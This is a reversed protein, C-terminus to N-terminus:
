SRSGTAARGGLGQSLLEIPGGSHAVSRTRRRGAGQMATGAAGSGHREGGVETGAVMVLSPPAAAASTSAATSGASAPARSHAAGIATGRQASAKAPTRAVSLPALDNSIGTPPNATQQKAQAVSQQQNLTANQPQRAAAQKM